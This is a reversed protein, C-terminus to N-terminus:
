CGVPHGTSDRYGSRGLFVVVTGLVIFGFALALRSVIISFPGSARHPFGFRSQRDAQDEGQVDM